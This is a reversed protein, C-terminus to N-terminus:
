STEMDAMTDKLKRPVMSYAEYASLSCTFADCSLTYSSACLIGFNRNNSRVKALEKALSLNRHVHTDQSLETCTSQQLKTPVPPIDYEGKDCSAVVNNAHMRRRRQQGWCMRPLVQRLRRQIIESLSAVIKAHRGRCAQLCRYNSGGTYVTRLLTSLPPYHSRLCFVTYRTKSTVITFATQQCNETQRQSDKEGKEEDGERSNR